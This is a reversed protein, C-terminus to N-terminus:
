APPTPRGSTRRSPTGSGGRRTSASDPSTGSRAAIRYRFCYSRHCLFSGGKSLRFGQMGALWAADSEVSFVTKGPMEAALATSGGSGYELIVDAIAYAARLAEAEAPPLTLVPRQPGPRPTKDTQQPNGPAM